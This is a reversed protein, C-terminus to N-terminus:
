YKYNLLKLVLQCDPHNMIKELVESKIEGRWHDFQFDKARYTGYYNQLRKLNEEEHSKPDYASNNMAKDFENRSIVGTRWKAELREKRKFFSLKLAQKTLSQAVVKETEPGQHSKLYDYAYDVYESANIFEYLNKATRKPNSILDEYKVVMIRQSLDRNQFFIKNLRFTFIIYLQSCQRRVKEVTQYDNLINGCIKAPEAAGSLWEQPEKQISNITARPDRQLLVVKFKSGM